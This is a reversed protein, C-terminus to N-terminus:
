SSPLAYQRIVSQSKSKMGHAQLQRSKSECATSKYTLSSIKSVFANGSLTVCYSHGNGKGSQECIAANRISIAQGFGRCYATPRILKVSIGTDNIEIFQPSCAPTSSAAVATASACAARIIETRGEAIWCILVDVTEESEFPSLKMELM